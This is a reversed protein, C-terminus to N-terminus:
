VTIMINTTTKDSRYNDDNDHRHHKHEPPPAQEWFGVFETRSINGNTDTDVEAHQMCVYMCGDMWRDMWGDMWGYMCVYLSINIMIINMSFM